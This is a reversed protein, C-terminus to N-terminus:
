RRSGSPLLNHAKCRIGAHAARQRFEFATASCCPKAASLHPNIRLMGLALQRRTFPEVHQEVLSRELFEVHIDLM